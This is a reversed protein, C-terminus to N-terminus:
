ITKCRSGNESWNFHLISKQKYLKKLSYEANVGNHFRKGRGHGIIDGAVQVKECANECLEKTLTIRQAKRPLPSM